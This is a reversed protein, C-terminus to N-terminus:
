CHVTKGVSVVPLSVQDWQARVAEEPMSGSVVARRSIVGLMKAGDTRRTLGNEGFAVVDGEEFPDEEPDQPGVVRKATIAGFLSTEPLAIQNPRNGFPSKELTRLKANPSVREQWEAFDGSGSELKAGRDTDVISGRHVGRQDHFKIWSEEGPALSMDYRKSTAVAAPQRNM